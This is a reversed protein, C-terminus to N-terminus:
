FDLLCEENDKVRLSIAPSLLLVTYHFGVEPYKIIVSLIIPSPEKEYNFKDIIIGLIYTNAM